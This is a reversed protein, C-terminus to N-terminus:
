PRSQAPNEDGSGQGSFAAALSAIALAPKLLLPDPPSDALLRGM